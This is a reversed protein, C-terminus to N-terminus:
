AREIRQVSRRLRLQREHGGQMKLVDRVLAWSADFRAGAGVARWFRRDFAEAERFSHALNERIKRVAVEGPM